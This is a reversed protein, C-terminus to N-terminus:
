GLTAAAVIGGPTGPSVLADAEGEKLLTVARAISTDKKRRLAELPTDEMTLVDAAPVIRLRVTEAQACLASKITAPQGVLLVQTIAPNAELAKCAGAVAEAPGHDGGMVDVAIRM